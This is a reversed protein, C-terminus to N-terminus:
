SGDRGPIDAPSNISAFSRGTPDYCEWRAPTWVQVRVETFFSAVPASGDGLSAEVAPLCSRAYVAHLPEWGSETRPIVVEGEGEKLLGALLRASLWPMDCGVVLVRECAAQSLAAHIGVLPGRGSLVDPIVRSGSPAVARVQDVRDPRTVLVVEACLPALIHHVHELLTGEGWPLAAKDRGLRTSDGGMLIAGTVPFRQQPM